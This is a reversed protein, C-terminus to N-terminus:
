VVIRATFLNKSMFWIQPYYWKVRVNLGIVIWIFKGFSDSLNDSFNRIESNPAVVIHLICLKPAFNNMACVKMRITKPKSHRHAILLATVIKKKTKQGMRAATALVCVSLRTWQEIICYSFHTRRTFLEVFRKYEARCEISLVDFIIAHANLINLHTSSYLTVSNCNCHTCM